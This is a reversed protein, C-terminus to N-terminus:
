HFCSGPNQHQYNQYTLICAFQFVQFLINHKEILLFWLTKLHILYSLHNRIAQFSFSHFSCNIILPINDIGYTSNKYLSVFFKNEYKLKKVYGNNQLFEITGDDNVRLELLKLLKDYQYVIRNKEQDRM